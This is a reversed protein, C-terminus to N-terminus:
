MRYTTGESPREPLHFFLPVRPVQDLDYVPERRAERRQYDIHRRHRRGSDLAVKADRAAVDVVDVVAESEGYARGQRERERRERM